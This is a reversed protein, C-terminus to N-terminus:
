EPSRRVALAKELLGLLTSRTFPKELYFDAGKFFIFEKENRFTYGTMAIIPTDAYSPKKRIETIADIGDLGPGLNIDMLIGDYQKEGVMNISTEGDVAVDLEYRKMLFLKVLQINAENDEVLLIAPLTKGTSVTQEGGAKKETPIIASPAEPQQNVPLNITFTSGRHLESTLSISGSIMTLSKSAISLGLGSGEYPRNYGEAAQRFEEFVVSQKDEPIGIGTDTISICIRQRTDDAFSAEISIHGKETFKVANDLVNELIKRVLFLDSFLALDDDINTFITLGKATAHVEINQTLQRLLNTLDIPAQKLQFGSTLQAYLMISDLTHQLRLGSNLIYQAKKRFEDDTLDECLIESFGLIGNMPTRFEHSMNQLLTSKMRSSEEATLKAQILDEEAQKKETVDSIIGGMIAEGDQDAAVIYRRDYVWRISGDPRYIRYEGECIGSVKLLESLHVIRAKDDDYIVENWLSPNATLESVPRGYIREFGPNIIYIEKGDLSSMWVIDHIDQILRRFRSETRSLVSEIHKKDRKLQTEEMERKVAPGLRNLHTKMLYDNAGGKMITVAIDEGVTGSVLIFPIDLNKSKFLELAEKGGFGPLSYDSIVLDWSGSSFAKDMETRTKVQLHEVEFGEKKLQRVVLLADTDNDEVLLLKITTM